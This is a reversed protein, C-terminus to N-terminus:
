NSKVKTIIYNDYSTTTDRRRQRESKSLDGSNYEYSSVSNHTKVDNRMHTNKKTITVELTKENM